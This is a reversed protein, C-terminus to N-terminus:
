FFVIFPLFDIRVFLSLWLKIIDWTISVFHLILVWNMKQYIIDVEIFYHDHSNLLCAPTKLFIGSEVTPFSFKGFVRLSQNLPWCEIDIRLVFEHLLACWIRCSSRRSWRTRIRGLIDVLLVSQVLTRPMLCKEDRISGTVYLHPLNLRKIKWTKYKSTVKPPLHLIVNRGWIFVNSM